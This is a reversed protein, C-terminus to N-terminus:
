VFLRIEQLSGDVIESDDAPDDPDIKIEHRRAESMCYAVNGRAGIAEYAQALEIWDMSSQHDMGSLNERRKRLKILAPDQIAYGPFHNM